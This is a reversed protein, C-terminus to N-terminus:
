IRQAAQEKHKRLDLTHSDFSFTKEPRWIPKGRKDKGVEVYRWMPFSTTTLKMLMNDTRDRLYGSISGKDDRRYGQADYLEGKTPEVIGSYDQRTNLRMIAFVLREEDFSLDVGEGGRDFFYEIKQKTEARIDNGFLPLMLQRETEEKSQLRSDLYTKPVIMREAEKFLQYLLEINDRESYKSGDPLLEEGSEIAKVKSAIQAKTWKGPLTFTKIKGKKEKKKIM